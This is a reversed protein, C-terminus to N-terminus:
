QAQSLALAVAARLARLVNMDGPTRRLAQEFCPLAKVPSDDRLYCTGLLTVVEVFDPALESARRWHKIATATEGRKDALWGAFYLLMEDEERAELAAEVLPAFLADAGSLLLLRLKLLMAGSAMPPEWRDIMSLFPLAFGEGFTTVLADWTRGLDDDKLSGTASEESALLAASLSEELVDDEGGLAARFIRLSARTADNVADGQQAFLELVQQAQAHLGYEHFSTMAALALEISPPSTMSRSLSVDFWEMVGKLDGRQHKFRAVRLARAPTAELYMLVISAAELLAIDDREVARGALRELRVSLAARDSDPQSKVIELAQASDGQRIAFEVRWQWRTEPGVFPSATEALALAEHLPDDVLALEVRARAAFVGGESPDLRGILHRASELDDICVLAWAFEASLEPEQPPVAFAAFLHLCAQGPHETMLLLQALARRTLPDNPQHELAQELAKYATDLEGLNLCARAYERHLQPDRPNQELAAELVSLGGRVDGAQVQARALLLRLSAAGPRWVLAEHLAFMAEAPRDLSLLLEARREHAEIFFPHEKILAALVELAHEEESVRLAIEVLALSLNPASEEHAAIFQVLLVYAERDRDFACLTEARRMFAQAYEPDASTAHELFSLKHELLEPDDGGVAEAMALHCFASFSYTPIYDLRERERAAPEVEFAEYLHFLARRILLFLEGHHGQEKWGALLTGRRDLLNVRFTLANDIELIGHVAAALRDREAVVRWQELALKADSLSAGEEDSLMHTSLQGVVNLRELLHHELPRALAQYTHDKGDSVKVEIPLLTLTTM